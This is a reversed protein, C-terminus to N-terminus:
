YVQRRKKISGPLGPESLDTQFSDHASRILRRRYCSRERGSAFGQLMLIGWIHQFPVPRSEFQASDVDGHLLAFDILGKSLHEMVATRDGSIVHLRILPYQSQLTRAIQVLFRVPRAEAAGITIDGAITDESQAIESETKRMLETIEEARKRLLM